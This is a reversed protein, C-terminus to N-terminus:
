NAPPAYSGGNLKKDTVDSAAFTGLVLTGFATWEGLAAGTKLALIAGVILVILTIAFKKRLPRIGLYEALNYPIM